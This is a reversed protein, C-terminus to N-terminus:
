SISYLYKWSLLLSNIEENIAQTLIKPTDVNPTVPGQEEIFNTLTQIFNLIRPYILYLATFILIAIIIILLLTRHKFNRISRIRQDEIEQLLHHIKDAKDKNELDDM